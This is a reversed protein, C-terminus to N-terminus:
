RSGFEAMRHEALHEVVGEVTDGVAFTAVGSAELNKLNDPPVGRNQDVEEVSSWVAWLKM